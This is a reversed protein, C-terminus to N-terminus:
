SYGLQMKIKQINSELRTMQLGMMEQKQMVQLSRDLKEDLETGKKDLNDYKEELNTMRKDFKTEAQTIREELQKEVGSIRDYIENQKISASSGVMVSVYFYRQGQGPVSKRM